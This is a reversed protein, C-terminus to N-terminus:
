RSDLSELGDSLLMNLAELVIHFMEAIGPISDRVDLVDLDDIDETVSNAVDLGHLLDGHLFELCHGIQECDCVCADLCRLSPSLVRLRMALPGWLLLLVIPLDVHGIPSVVFVASITPIATLLGGILFLLPRETAKVLYLLPALDM